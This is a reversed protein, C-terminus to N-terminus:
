FRFILDIILWDAVLSCCLLSSNGAGAISGSSFFELIFSIANPFSLLKKWEGKWTRRRRQFRGYSRGSFATSKNKWCRKWNERKKKKKKSNTPQSNLYHSPLCFYLPATYLFHHFPNRSINLFLSGVKSPRELKQFLMSSLFAWVEMSFNVGGKYKLSFLSFPTKGYLKKLEM